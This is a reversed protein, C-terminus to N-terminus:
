NKQVTQSLPQWTPRQDQNTQNQSTHKPLEVVQMKQEKQEQNTKTISKIEV